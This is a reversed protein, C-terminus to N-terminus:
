RKQSSMVQLKKWATSLSKIKWLSGEREGRQFPFCAPRSNAAKCGPFFVLTTLHSPQCCLMHQHCSASTQVPRAGHWQLSSGTGRSGQNPASTPKGASVPQSFHRQATLRPQLCSPHHHQEGRPLSSLQEQQQPSSGAWICHPQLQTELRSSASQLFGM